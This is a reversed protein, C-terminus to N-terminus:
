HPQRTSPTATPSVNLSPPQTPAKSPDSILGIARSALESPGKQKRRERSYEDLEGDVGQGSIGAVVSLQKGEASHETALGVRINSDAAKRAKDYFFQAAELDGDLEAVYGRNNLTFASNADLEYARLFDDRGASSDNGNIASIGRMTFVVANLEATNMKDMREKLRKASSTAMTGVTRGRWSHDLTVVVIETSHSDAAARYSQLANEYDGISEEAVGLNNLTFPNTADLLLARKLAAVAQFGHNKSLLQMADVNMRNVRMPVDHLNEFAAKMPQGELQKSNSREIIASNGQESALAYFKNARDLEGEIESVYGLNNLTFPDAPDYLYAQYFLAAAKEYQRKKVAQVGERNLRQVPTLESHKPIRLKLIDEGWGNHGHSFAVVVVSLSLILRIM